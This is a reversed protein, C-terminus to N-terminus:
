IKVASLGWIRGLVPLFLIIRKMRLGAVFICMEDPTSWFLLIQLGLWFGFLRCARGRVFTKFHSGSMFILETVATYIFSLMYYLCLITVLIIIIIIYIYIYIYIPITIM